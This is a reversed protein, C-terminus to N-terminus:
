RPLNSEYINLGYDAPKLMRSLYYRCEKQDRPGLGAVGLGPRPGGVLGSELSIRDEGHPLSVPLTQSLSFLRQVPLNFM